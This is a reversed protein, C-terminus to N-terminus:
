GAVRSCIFFLNRKKPSISSIIPTARSSSEMRRRTSSKKAWIGSSGSPSCPSGDAPSLGGAASYASCPLRGATCLPSIAAKRQFRGGGFPFFGGVDAPSLEVSVVRRLLVVDLRMCPRVRHPGNALWRLARKHYKNVYRAFTHLHVARVSGVLMQLLLLCCHCFLFKVALPFRRRGARLVTRLCHGAAPPARCLTRWIAPAAAM